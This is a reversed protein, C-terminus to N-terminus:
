SFFLKLNNMFDILKILKVRSKIEDLHIESSKRYRFHIGSYHVVELLKSRSRHSAVLISRIAPSDLLFSWLKRWSSCVSTLLYVHGHSNRDAFIRNSEGLGCNFRLTKTAIHILVGDFYLKPCQYCSRLCRYFRFNSKFFYFLFYPKYYLGLKSFNLIHMFTHWTAFSVILWGTLKHLYIHQDLPLFSGFGRTRLYTLTHRLM